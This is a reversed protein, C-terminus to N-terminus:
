YIKKHGKRYVNEPKNGCLKNIQKWSNLVRKVWKDM